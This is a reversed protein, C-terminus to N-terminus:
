CVCYRQSVCAGRCQFLRCLYFTIFMITVKPDHVTSLLVFCLAFLMYVQNRNQPHPPDTGLCFLKLCARETGASESHQQMTSNVCTLDWCFM